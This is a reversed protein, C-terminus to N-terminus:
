FPWIKSLFKTLWGRKQIDGVTGKSDFKLEVSAIKESRVTNDIGIDEQSVVGRLLMTEEEENIKYVKKAEIVLNGNPLVEVVEAQVKSVFSTSHQQSATNDNRLRNEYNIKPKNEKTDIKNNKYALKLFENVAWEWRTRKDSNVAGKISTITSESIIITILDHKQFQRRKTQTYITENSKFISDCFVSGIIFILFGSILCNFKRSTKIKTM